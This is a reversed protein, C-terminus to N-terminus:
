NRGGNIAADGNIIRRIEERMILSSDNMKMIEEM